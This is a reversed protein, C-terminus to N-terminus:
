GEKPTDSAKLSRAIEEASVAFEVTASVVFEATEGPGLIMPFPYNPDAEHCGRLTYGDFVDWLGEYGCKPCKAVDVRHLKMQIPWSNYHWARKREM